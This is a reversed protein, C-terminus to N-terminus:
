TATRVHLNNLVFGPLQLADQRANRACALSRLMQSIEKQHLSYYALAVSRRRRTAGIVHAAARLHVPAVLARKDNRVLHAAQHPHPHPHPYTAARARVPARAPTPALTHSRTPTPAYAHSVARYQAATRANTCLVTSTPVTLM